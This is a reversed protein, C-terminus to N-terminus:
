SLKSCDNKTYNCLNLSSRVTAAERLINELIAINFYKLHAYINMCVMGKWKVYKAKYGCIDKISISKNWCDRPLTISFCASLSSKSLTAKVTEYFNTARVNKELSPADQEVVVKIFVIKTSNIKKHIKRM